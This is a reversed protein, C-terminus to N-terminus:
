PPSDKPKGKASENIWTGNELLRVRRLHEEGDELVYFKLGRQLARRADFFEACARQLAEELTAPGGQAPGRALLALAVAWIRDQERPEIINWTDM